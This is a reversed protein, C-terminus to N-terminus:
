KPSQLGLAKRISKRLKESDPPKILYDFAGFRIVSKATELTGQATIIIVPIDPYKDRIRKLLEIGNMGPMMIGTTVLDYSDSRLFELAEEGGNATTVNYGELSLITSICRRVMYEDDVVLIRIDKRSEM